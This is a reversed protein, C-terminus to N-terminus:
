GGSGAPPSTPNTESGVPQSRNAAGDQETRNDRQILSTAWRSGNFICALGIALTIAPDFLQYLSRQQDRGAGASSAALSFTYYAWTLTPALSSVAFYLGVFLFAFRYLKELSVNAIRGSVQRNGLLLRTFGPAAFWLALAAILALIPFSLRSSREVAGSGITRSSTRLFLHASQVLLMLCQMRVVVLLIGFGLDVTVPKPRVSRSPSQAESGATYALPTAQKQEETSTVPKFETTGCEICRPADDDNERGCYSCEKM